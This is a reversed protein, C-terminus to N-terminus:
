NECFDISTITGCVIATADGMSRIYLADGRFSVCIDICELKICSSDYELISKCGEVYAETNSFIEISSGSIASIPADLFNAVKQKVKRVKVVFWGKTSHKSESM